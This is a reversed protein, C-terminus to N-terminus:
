RAESVAGGRGAVCGGADRVASRERELRGRATRLTREGDRRGEGDWELGANDTAWIIKIGEESPKRGGSWEVSQQKSTKLSCSQGALHHACHGETVARAVLDWSM